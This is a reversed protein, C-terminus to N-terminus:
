WLSLPISVYLSDVRSDENLKSSVESVVSSIFNQTPISLSGVVLIGGRVIVDPYDFEETDFYEIHTFIDTNWNGKNYEVEIKYFM